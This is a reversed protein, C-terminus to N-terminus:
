DEYKTTQFLEIAFPIFLILGASYMIIAYGLLGYSNEIDIGAFFLIPSFILGAVATWRSIQANFVISIHKSKGLMYLYFQYM